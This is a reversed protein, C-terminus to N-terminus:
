AILVYLFGHDYSGFKLLSWSSLVFIIIKCIVLSLGFRGPYIFYFGNVSLNNTSQGQIPKELPFKWEMSIKKFCAIVSIRVVTTPVRDIAKWHFQTDSFKLISMHTSFLHTRVYKNRRRLSQDNLLHEAKSVTYYGISPIQRGVLGRRIRACRLVCAM